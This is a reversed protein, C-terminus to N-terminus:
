SQEGLLSLKGDYRAQQIAGAEVENCCDSHEKSWAPTDGASLYSCVMTSFARLEHLSGSMGVSADWGEYGVLALDAKSNRPIHGPRVVKILWGDRERVAEVENLFRVDPIVLLDVGHNSNLAYDIWTHPYVSERFAPTGVAVWLDVVTPGDPFLESELATLRVMRDKEGDKTDYHEPPKVGAWGFLEHTIQKLKWAFSLKKATLGAARADAVLYNALTDKGTRSYHGLGIIM